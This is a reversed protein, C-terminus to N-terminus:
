FERIEHNSPLTVVFRSGKGPGKSHATVTGGHLEVLHRVIALGLGLGSAKGEEGRKAFRDFVFPLFKPDIGVGSDSVVIELHHDLRAVALEIEGGKPTFKVANSLLNSLIQQLRDPDAEVVSQRTKIETQLDISKAEVAPRISDLAADVIKGIEVPQVKLQMQGKIIRSIDLLDETLQLQVKANREITELARPTESPDVQGERLMRAWGLISNLPTRIEHSIQAVFEDKALNAQEAFKRAQQELDHLRAREEEIRKRTSIDRASKSAGIIVGKRDRVPSVTLEINVRRGSKGIRVTEFYEIREGNRLRSLIMEEEEIRDPPIIITIPQGIVEDASYEFLREAAKNWSEIIGDLSKSVIADEASEVIAALLGRTRDAKRRESIDRFILVAGVINGERSRVPSGSDDIPIATGKKTILLTHNALGFIIGERIARFAPNEVEAQTDENVIHFVKQLPQGQAEQASWGTLSEAVSNLFTVRGGIDTAIVADGISSLIVEFQV